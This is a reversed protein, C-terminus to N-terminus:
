RIYRPDPEVRILLPLKIQARPAGSKEKAEFLSEQWGPKMTIVAPPQLADRGRYLAYSELSQRLRADLEPLWDAQWSEGDMWEVYLRYRNEPLDEYIQVQRSATGKEELFAELVTLLSAAPVKEMAINLIEGTKSVFALNPTDGTFGCVRVIDHIRYRYLGSWNTLVLEYEEGDTLEWPFRPHDEDGLPLFEYFASSTGLPGYAAEPEDPITIKAESAGYGLDFTVMDEPMVDALKRANAGVSGGLWFKAMLIDPWYNKPIFADKGRALLGELFDAQEPEPKMVAELAAREEASLRIRKSITGARLDDILERAHEQVYRVRIQFRGANNTDVLIIDRYRLSFLMSTYDAAEGDALGAIMPPYSMRAAVGSSDLSKGSAYGVPIGAETKQDPIISIIAYYHTTGVLKVSFAPDKPSLGKRALFAGFRPSRALRALTGKMEVLERLNSVAKKAAAGAASEPIRKSYGTSGATLVFMEPLGPFLVDAAGAAMREVAGAYDSFDTLPLRSRFDEASAIGEFDYKRGIETGASAALIEKLVREQTGQCDGTLAAWQKLAEAPSAKLFSEYLAM